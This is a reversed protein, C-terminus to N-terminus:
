KPLLLTVYYTVIAGLITVLLWRFAVPGLMLYKNKPPNNTASGMVETAASKTSLASRDSNIPWSKMSTESGYRGPIYEGLVWGFGHSVPTNSACALLTISLGAVLLLWLKLANVIIPDNVRVSVLHGVGFYSAVSFSLIILSGVKWARFVRVQRESVGVGRGTALSHVGGHLSYSMQRIAIVWSVIASFFSFFGCSLCAWLVYLPWSTLSWGHLEAKHIDEWAGTAIAGSLLLLTACLDVRFMVWYRMIRRIHRYSESDNSNSFM